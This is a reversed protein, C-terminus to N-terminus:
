VNLVRLVNQYQVASNGLAAIGTRQMLDDRTQEMVGRAIDLDRIQSVAEAINVGTNRRESIASEITNMQAGMGSRASNIQNAATNLATLANAAGEPTTLELGNLGLANVTTTPLTIQVGTNAGLEVTTQTGNLLATNNFQTGTATGNIGEILQQAEQNLATRNEATMTGNAAQLALDQLRQVAGGQAALGGEATEALTYGNQYAAIEAQYQNLLAQANESIALGAADDAAQNIRLGTALQANSRLLAESTRGVQQAANLAANNTNIRMGM